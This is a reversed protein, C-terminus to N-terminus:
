RLLAVVDRALGVAREHIELVTTTSGAAVWERIATRVASGCLAVISDALPARSEEDSFRPDDAMLSRVAVALGDMIRTMQAMKRSFLEPYERAIQVRVAHLAASGLTPAMVDLLVGVISSILDGERHHARVMEETVEVNQTGLIADEKCDFYNFFTRPSVDASESIADITAHDLGHRLVIGTAARELNARTEARKRDRLGLAPPSGM